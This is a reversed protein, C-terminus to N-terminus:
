FNITINVTKPADQRDAKRIGDLRNAIEGLTANDGCYKRLLGICNEVEIRDLDTLKTLADMRETKTQKKM